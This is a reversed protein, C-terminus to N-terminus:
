EAAWGMAKPFATFVERARDMFGPKNPEFPLFAARPVGAAEAERLFAEREVVFITTADGDNKFDRSRVAWLAEAETPEAADDWDSPTQDDRPM